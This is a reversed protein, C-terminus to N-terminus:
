VTRYFTSHLFVTKQCCQCRYTGRTLPIDPMEIIVDSSSCRSESDGLITGVEYRDLIKKGTYIFIKLIIKLLWCDVRM